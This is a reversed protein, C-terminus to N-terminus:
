GEKVVVVHLVVKSQVSMNGHALVTASNASCYAVAHYPM